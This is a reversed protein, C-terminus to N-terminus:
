MTSSSTEEAVQSPWNPQFLHWQSPAARILSEYRSVLIETLDVVDDRLSSTRKFKIPETAIAYHCGGPLMYVGGPIIPAGTRLSLLAVGQPVSTVEGFFPLRVGSNTLDRDAVLAVVQNKGLMKALQGFASASAPIVHVGFKARHEAFWDFLEKPELEEMVSTIPYGGSALWAAGFDWNGLHPTVFIVGKGEGLADYIHEFGHFGIRANLEKRSLRGLPLAEVWYRSYSFYGRAALLWDGIWGMQSASARTLNNMVVRRKRPSFVFAFLGAIYALVITLSNPLHRLFTSAMEYFAVVRRDKDFIRTLM